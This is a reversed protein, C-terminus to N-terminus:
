NFGYQGYIWNVGDSYFYMTKTNGTTALNIQAPASNISNNAFFQGGNSFLQANDSTSINRLIYMRGPVTSADPLIFETNGASPVLSIFYGDDIPTASGGPGGNLNVVKFSVNGNVDLMSQPAITNIGVQAELNLSFSLAFIFFYFLKM